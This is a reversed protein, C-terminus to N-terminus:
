DGDASTFGASLGISAPFTKLFSEQLLLIEALRRLDSAVAGDETAIEALSQQELALSAAINAATEGFMYYDMSGGLDPAVDFVGYPTQFMDAMARFSVELSRLGLDSAVAETRETRAAGPMTGLGRQIKFKRLRDTNVVLGAILERLAEDVTAFTTNGQAAGDWDSRFDSGPRWAAAVGEALGAQHDAIATALDCGYAGPALDAYLLDELATLNTLAISRGVLAGEAVLLPDEATLAMRVARRSFDKPDPWLQFRMPGEAAMVPGVQILSARQWALFTEAFASRLAAADGDGGCFAGAATDLTRAADALAEYAPLIVEDATVTLADQLLGAEEPSFSSEAVAAFPASVLLLWVTLITRTM